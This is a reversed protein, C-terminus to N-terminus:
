MLNKNNHTGYQCSKDVPSDFHDVCDDKVIEVQDLLQHAKMMTKMSESQIKRLVLKKGVKRYDEGIKNIIDIGSYDHVDCVQLHVEVTDPDNEPDFFKKFSEVSAFFLQGQVTVIKLSEGSENDEKIIIDATFTDGANWAFVVSALVVGTGVAVALDVFLTIVAVVVVIIADARPVKKYTGLTQERFKQPLCASFLIYLSSWDFTHYVVTFMVGILSSIPMREIFWWGVLLIVLTFAGSIATSLRFRCGAQINIMSQGIMACGGMSGFCGCVINAIGQGICEQNPRGKTKTIQDILNLTLLSEVLGITALICAYPLCFMLNDFTLPAMVSTYKPDMWFLTPLSGKLSGAMCVVLYTKYGLPRYIAWEILCAAGVAILAAPLRKNIKPVTFMVIMTAIIQIWALGMIQSNAWNANQFVSFAGLNMKPGDSPPCPQSAPCLATWEPDWPIGSLDPAQLNKFQSLTMVMALGNCFGVMVSTPILKLVKGLRFVGILIQVSGTLIVTYFLLTIGYGRRRSETVLSTMVVAMAGTAGSIMGPRGGAVGTMVGMIWAATLGVFPDVGAVFAFAVAEPVQAMAVTIGSILEVKIDGVYDGLVKFYSEPILWGPRCGCEHDYREPKIDPKPEGRTITFGSKQDVRRPDKVSHPILSTSESM